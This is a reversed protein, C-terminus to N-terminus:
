YENLTSAFLMTSVSTSRTRSGLSRICIEISSLAEATVEALAINDASVGTERM